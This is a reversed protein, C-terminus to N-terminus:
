LATCLFVKAIRRLPGCSKDTCSVGATQGKCPGIGCCLANKSSQFITGNKHKIEQKIDHASDLRTYHKKLWASLRDTEEAREWSKSIVAVFEDYDIRGEGQACVSPATM